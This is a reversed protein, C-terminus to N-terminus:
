EQPKEFDRDPYFHVKIAEQRRLLDVGQDYDVFSGHHTQICETDIRKDAVMDILLTKDRETPPRSKFTELRLGSAWTKAKFAVDGRQVGFIVVHEKVHDLVNEISSAFGACDYGLDFRQEGLEDVHLVEGLQHERVFALRRPNIDIGVVRSAGWIKAAQLALLGAPGLGSVLVSKARLDDFQDLGLLVCKLLELSVARKFTVTDPLKILDRESYVLYQAYAGNGTRHELAAVRDGVQFATVGAGVARIIGAAEHGPFGIPLPYRPPESEKFMDSGAMMHMDWNPCTAVIAIEVLVESEGPSPLEADVITYKGPSIIQLAKM